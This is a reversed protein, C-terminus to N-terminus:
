PASFHACVQNAGIKKDASRRQILLRGRPDFVFVYVTHAALLLLLRCAANNRHRSRWTPAECGGLTVSEAGAGGQDHQQLGPQAVCVVVGEGAKHLLGLTHTVSRPQTGIVDGREDVFHLLEHAPDAEVPKHHPAASPPAAEALASM